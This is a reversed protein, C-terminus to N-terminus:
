CLFAFNQFHKPPLPPPSTHPPPPTTERSVRIAGFKLAASALHGPKGFRKGDDKPGWCCSYIDIYSSRYSLSSGELTDTAKGDLMRIGSLSVPWSNLVLVEAYSQSKPAKIVPRKISTPYLTLHLKPAKIVPQKISTPYLTLHLKTAKIDPRKISTPYLTLHLKTAKIVPRKISTPYLTLHLKTAKIDPRKISTPYLTLHLKTAKIVPRKISTPYLTLHLKTAKIDPRKISTPYLTLHLKTAKIVPRKISTPYLTLHLKPVKIVRRRISSPYLAPHVTTKPSQYCTVQYLNSTPFPATQSLPNHIVPGCSLGWGPGRGSRVESAPTTPCAWAASVTTPKPQWREPASPGTVPLLPVFRRATLEPTHVWKNLKDSILCSLMIVRDPSHTAPRAFSNVISRDFSHTFPDIFSHISPHTFSRTLPWHILSLPHICPHISPRNRPCIPPYISPLISPSISQHIELRGTIPVARGRCPTMTMIMSTLVRKRTRHVFCVGLWLYCPQKQGDPPHPFGVSVSCPRCFGLLASLFRALGVFISRPRCFGLSASLFRALGVSVSCPRCFGLSPSLVSRPLASPVPRVWDGWAQDPESFRRGSWM